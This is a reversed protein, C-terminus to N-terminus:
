WGETEQMEPGLGMQRLRGPAKALVMEWAASFLSPRGEVKKEQLSQV